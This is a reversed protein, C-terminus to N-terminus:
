AHAEMGFLCLTSALTEEQSHKSHKTQPFSSPTRAQPTMNFLPSVFCSLAQSGHLKTCPALSVLCPKHDIKCILMAVTKLSGEEGNIELIPTYQDVKESQQLYHTQICTSYDLAGYLHQLIIESASVQTGEEWKTIKM